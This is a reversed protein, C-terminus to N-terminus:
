LSDALRRVAEEGEEVFRRIIEAAPLVEHIHGASQGALPILEHARGSRMAEDLEGRLRDAHQAVEHSRGSWTEIFPTTLSRPVAGWGGETSPPVVHEAFDIKVAHESEASVIARKWEEPIKAETSALFRTGVNVGEAGLALAAALGRGDAIGGAAIVPIPRVADVVQPVLTITGVAGSFGGAESGQAIIADAGAEAAVRAQGVTTVQVLFKAGADHVRRELDAPDGLALSIVPPREELTAEFAEENFPRRTHNVAFPKDTLERVEGIERRVEAPSRFTTAVSGLGGAKSVAAVLSPSVNWPGGLPGQIIPFEIGLLDCLRTRIM